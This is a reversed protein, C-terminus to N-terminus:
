KEKGQEDKIPAYFYIIGLDKNCRFLDRKGFFCDVHVQEAEEIRGDEDKTGDIPMLFCEKDKNTGCIPCKGEQNFHPFTRRM